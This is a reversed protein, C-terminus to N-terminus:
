VAELPMDHSPRGEDRMVLVVGTERGAHNTLPAMTLSVTVVRNGCNSTAFRYIEGLCRQVVIEGLGTIMQCDCTARIEDLTKGTLEFQCELLRRASANMDVLRFNEDFILVGEQISDFVAAMRLRFTEHRDILEKRDLALKAIRLLEDKQLPKVLYDFAGLRVSEAATAIEPSGTVMVVQCNPNDDHLARLLKMGSDRGLLIDLFVVDYDTEAVLTTAGTLSEACDVHYGADRLFAEFTFRISEEDDVVLIRKTQEM